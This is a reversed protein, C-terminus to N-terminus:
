YFSQELHSHSPYSLNPCLIMYKMCKRHGYALGSSIRSNWMSHEFTKYSIPLKNGANSRNTYKRVFACTNIKLRELSNYYMLERLCFHCLCHTSWTFSTSFRFLTKKMATNRSKKCKYKLLITIDNVDSDEEGSRDASKRKEGCFIVFTPNLVNRICHYWMWLTFTLIFKFQEESIFLDDRVKIDTYIQCKSIDDSRLFSTLLSTRFNWHRLLRSKYDEKQRIAIRIVIKMIIVTHKERHSYVALTVSIFCHCSKVSSSICTFYKLYEIHLLDNLLLIRASNRHKKLYKQNCYSKVGIYSHDHHLGAM